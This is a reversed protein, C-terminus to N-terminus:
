CIRPLELKVIPLTLPPLDRTFLTALELRSMVEEGSKSSDVGRNQNVRIFDNKLEHHSRHPYM